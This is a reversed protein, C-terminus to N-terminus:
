EISQIHRTSKLWTALAVIEVWPLGQFPSWRWKAHSCWSFSSVAVLSCVSWTAHCLVHRQARFALLTGQPAASIGPVLVSIWGLPHEGLINVPSETTENHRLREKSIFTLDRLLLFSVALLFSKLVKRRQRLLSIVGNIRTKRRIFLWNNIPYTNSPLNQSLNKVYMMENKLGDLFNNWVFLSCTIKIKRPSNSPIM